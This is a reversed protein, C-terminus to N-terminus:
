VVVNNYFPLMGTAGNTHTGHIGPIGDFKSSHSGSSMLKQFFPGFDVMKETWILCSKLDPLKSGQILMQSGM